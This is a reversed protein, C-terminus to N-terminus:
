FGVVFVHSPRRSVVVRRGYSSSKRSRRAPRTIVMKRKKGREKGRREQTEQQAALTWISVTSSVSRQFAPSPEVMVLPAPPTALVIVLPAPPAAEVTAYTGEKSQM